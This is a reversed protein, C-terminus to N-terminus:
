PIIETTFQITSPALLGGFRVNRFLRLYAYIFYISELYFPRCETLISNIVPIFYNNLHNEKSMYSIYVYM